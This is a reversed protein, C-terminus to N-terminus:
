TAGPRFASPAKVLSTDLMRLPHEAAEPWARFAAEHLRMMASLLADDSDFHGPELMTIRYSGCGDPHDPDPEATMVAVATGTQRAIRAAGSSLTLDHGLFNVKTHGPQDSAIMVPHGSELLGRIGASGIAVDVMTVRAHSRVLRAQQRMWAPMHTAFMDSTAIVHLDIGAHGLSAPLGEYDGHHVFNVVFASGADRLARLQEVGRIRQRNVLSPHWRSEGRWLSRRIYAIALREVRDAPEDNGVIYRMQRVADSWRKPRRVGIFTRVAVILRVSSSPLLRRADNLVWALLSKVSTL